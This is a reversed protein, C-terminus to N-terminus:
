QYLHVQCLHIVIAQFGVASNSSLFLKRNGMLSGKWVRWLRIVKVMLSSYVIGFCMAHSVGTLTCIIPSPILLTLLFFSMNGIICAIVLLSSIISCTARILPHGLKWLLFFISLLCFIIGICGFIFLVLGINSNLKYFAVLKSSSNSFNSSNLM